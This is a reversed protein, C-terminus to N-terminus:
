GTQDEYEQRNNTLSCFEPWHERFDEVMAEWKSLSGLSGTVNLGNISVRVCPPCRGSEEVGNKNGRPLGPQFVTDSFCGVAELRVAELRVPTM